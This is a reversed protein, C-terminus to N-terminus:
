KGVFKNYKRQLSEYIDEVSEDDDEEDDCAEGLPNDGLATGPRKPEYAHRSNEIGDNDYQHLNPENDLEEQVNRTWYFQNGKCTVTFNDGEVGNTQREGDQVAEFETRFPGNSRKAEMSPNGEVSESDEELNKDLSLDPLLSEDVQETDEAEEAEDEDEVDEDTEESELISSVSRMLGKLSFAEFMDDEVETEVEPQDMMGLSIEDDSEEPAGMTDTEVDMDLSVDDNSGFDTVSGALDDVASALESAGDVPSDVSMADEPDMIAQTEGGIEEGGGIGDFDMPELKPMAVGAAGAPNSQEAQGALALIQSLTQLDSSELGAIDINVAAENLKKKM